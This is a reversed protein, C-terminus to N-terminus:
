QNAIQNDVYFKNKPHSILFFIDGLNNKYVEISNFNKIYKFKKERVM